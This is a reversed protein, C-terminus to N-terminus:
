DAIRILTQITAYIRIVWVGKCTAELIPFGVVIADIVINCLRSGVVIVAIVINCVKFGVVITVIPIFVQMVFLM